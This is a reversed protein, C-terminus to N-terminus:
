RQSLASGVLPVHGLRLEPEDVVSYRLHSCVICCALLSMPADEGRHLDREDTAFRALVEVDAAVADTVPAM